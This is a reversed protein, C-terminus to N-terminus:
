MWNRRVSALMMLVAGSADPVMSFWTQGVDVSMETFVNSSAISCM